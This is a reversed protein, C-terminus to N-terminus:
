SQSFGHEYTINIPIKITGTPTEESSKFHLQLEHTKEPAPHEIYYNRPENSYISPVDSIEIFIDHAATEGTNNLTLVLLFDAGPHIEDPIDKKLEIAAKKLPTRENVRVPFPYRLTDRAPIGEPHYVIHIEPFYIGEDEPAHFAFTILTSSGGGLMGVNEFRKHDHEFHPAFLYIDEIDASINVATNKITVTVTGLEGPTLIEPQITYDMITLAPANASTVPTILLLLLILILFSRIIEKIKANVTIVRVTIDGNARRRELRIELNKRDRIQRFLEAQNTHFEEKREKWDGKWEEFLDKKKGNEIAM